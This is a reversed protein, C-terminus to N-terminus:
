IRYIGVFVGGKYVTYHINNGFQTREIKYEPSKLCALSEGVATDVDSIPIDGGDRVADAIKVYSEYIDKWSALLKDFLNQYEFYGIYQIEATTVDTTKKTLLIYGLYKENEELASDSLIYIWYKAIGQPTNPERKYILHESKFFRFAEYLSTDLKELGEKIIVVKQFNPIENYKDIM